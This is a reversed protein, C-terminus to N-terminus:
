SRTCPDRRSEIRRRSPRRPGARGKSYERVLKQALAVLRRSSAATPFLEVVARQRAVAEVLRPDRPVFGRFPVGAGLFRRAMRDLRSHTRRAQPASLAANVVIEVPLRPVGLRLLKLTAYADALSTPEPTTVVLALACSATLGVVSPGIGAGADILVLDFERAAQRLLRLLPELRDGGLAALETRGSAAPLFRVGRPGEVLAEWLACRGALVDEVTYPPILGLLVDMNALSLDGDVV